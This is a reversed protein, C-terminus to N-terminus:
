RERTMEVLGWAGVLGSIAFFALVANAYAVHPSPPHTKDTLAFVTVAATNFLHLGVFLMKHQWTKGAKLYAQLKFYGLVSFLLASLAIWINHWALADEM